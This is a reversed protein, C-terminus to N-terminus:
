VLAEVRSTHTILTQLDSVLNAIALEDEGELRKGDAIMKRFAKVSTTIAAIKRSVDERNLKAQKDYETEANTINTKTLVVNGEVMYGDLETRFRNAIRRADKASYGYEVMLYLAYVFVLPEVEPTDDQGKRTVVPLLGIIDAPKPAKHGGTAAELTLRDLVRDTGKAGRESAATIVQDIFSM